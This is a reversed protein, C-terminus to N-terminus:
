ISSFSSAPLGEKNFLTGVIWNKWGYRVEKPNSVKTSSVKVKNNVISATAPYFIGDSGAVEFGDLTNQAMLGTGKSDFDVEVYTPFITHSKYLPGSSVLDQGYDKDLALLALRDGVDQKNTPHIDDKEGIDMIIAMGTKPTSTLTKRQADRLGQSIASPTYIYPAIQVYYFPFEHNWNARWDEIMGNFLEQYEQYNDVNSEGQYWIAGKISYPIVPRLMEAFLVGYDNPNNLLKGQKIKENLTSSNAILKQTSYNHVLFQNNALFAHHKFKFATSPITQSNSANKFVIPGRWGGGGGSDTIRLAITNEGKILLEKPITYDRTTNWGFSNGVLRGNFYTQDGDDIGDKVILQYDSTTDEVEIKTRFWIIGDSLLKVSDPFYAEFTGETGEPIKQEWAEWSTDDFNVKSFDGDKLDLNTWEEMETSWKPMDVTQFGFAQRNMTFISDNYVKIKEQEKFFDYAAPLKLNKTPNLTNLKKTSTWAEVRTGGWATNVIGIPVGLDKHLRRAFFYATASFGSAGYHPSSNAANEPTTVLWKAEKIKEGTLDMPVTFMRIDKYNANAIEEEQNDICGEYQRLKWEMNSQGSSLWVEGIMVDKFTITSDKTTVLVEFPGGAKPTPLNLKWNGATNSQTTASKGWSGTISVEEGMTYDGWFAVEDQQQLVMHDSFVYALKLPIEEGTNQLTSQCSVLLSILFFIALLNTNSKKMISNRKENQRSIIKRNSRNQYKEM